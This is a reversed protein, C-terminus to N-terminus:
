FYKSLPLPRAHLRRSSPPPATATIQEHPPSRQLRAVAPAPASAEVAVMRLVSSATYLAISHYSHLYINIHFTVISTHLINYCTQREM